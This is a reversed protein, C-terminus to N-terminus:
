GLVAWGTTNGNSYLMWYKSKKMQKRWCMRALSKIWGVSGKWEEGYSSLICQIEPGAFRIVPRKKCIRSRCLNQSSKGSNLQTCMCILFKQKPLAPHLHLGLPKPGPGKVLVDGGVTYGKVKIHNISRRNFIIKLLRYCSLWWMYHHLEASVSLQRRFKFKECFLFM